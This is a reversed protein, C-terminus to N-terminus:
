PKLGAKKLISNLTGPKMDGSHDPVTVLERKDPHRYQRHSGKQRVLRWGQSELLQIVERAKM